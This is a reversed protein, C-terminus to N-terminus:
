RNGTRIRTVPFGGTGKLIPWVTETAIRGSTTDVVSPSFSFVAGYFFPRSSLHFTFPSLHFTQWRGNSNAIESSDGDSAKRSVFILGKM